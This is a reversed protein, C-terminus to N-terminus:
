ELRLPEGARAVAERKGAPRSVEIVFDPQVSARRVDVGARAVCRVVAVHRRAGVRGTWGYGEREIAPSAEAQPHEGHRRDGAAVVAHGEVQLRRQSAAVDVALGREFAVVVVTEASWM